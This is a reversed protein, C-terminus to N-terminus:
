VGTTRLGVVGQPRQRHRSANPSTVGPSTGSAELSYFSAISIFLRCHEPCDGQCLFIRDGTGATWLSLSGSMSWRLSTILLTFLSLLLSTIKTVPSSHAFASPGSLGLLGSQGLSRTPRTHHHSTAQAPSVPWPSSGSAGAASSPLAQPDLGPPSDLHSLM